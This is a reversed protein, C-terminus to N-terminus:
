DEYKTERNKGQQEASVLGMKIQFYEASLQLPLQLSTKHGSDRGFSLNGKGKCGWKGYGHKRAL